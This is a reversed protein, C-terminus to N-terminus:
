PQLIVTRSIFEEAKEGSELERTLKMIGRYPGPELRNGTNKKGIFYFQRARTKDQVINREAMINGHPDTITLTIRDNQLAGFYAGWFVLAPSDAPLTDPSHSDIKIAEFDPARATFGAAYLDFPQYSLGAGADWMSIGRKGCGETEEHGTFPDIAVDDRFVGFHVHPFQAIGSLGIEGIKDNQKINQGPTVSVSGNKLHCYISMWDGGHDIVVGNGCGRNDTLLKERETEDTRDDEVGTRVRLVTGDDAALVPVGNEMAVRDRIAFDTGHHGDYTREGCQYDRAKDTDPAVDPYNVIWCNEGVACKVPLSFVPRGQAQAPMATLSSICLSFLFLLFSRGTM